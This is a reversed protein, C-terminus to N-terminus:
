DLDSHRDFLISDAYVTEHVVLTQIINALTMGNPDLLLRELDADPIQNNALTRAVAMLSTASVLAARTKDISAISSLRHDIEIM